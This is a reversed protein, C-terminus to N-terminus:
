RSRAGWAGWAVGVGRIVPRAGPIIQLRTAESQGSTFHLEGLLENECGRVM